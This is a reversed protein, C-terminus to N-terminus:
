SGKRKFEFSRFFLRVLFIVIFLAGFVSALVKWPMVWIVVTREDIVDDYGRNVKATIVYRGILLERDWSFERLRLSKPLVFWPELEKYGVEEGFM